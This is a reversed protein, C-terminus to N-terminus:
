YCSGAPRTLQVIQLSQPTYPPTLYGGGWSIVDLSVVVLTGGETQKAHLGKQVSLNEIQRRSNRSHNQACLSTAQGRTFEEM